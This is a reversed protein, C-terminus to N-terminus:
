FRGHVVMGDTTPTVLIDAENRTKKSRIVWLAIGSGVVAAGLGITLDAGAALGREKRLFPQAEVVCPQHSGACLPAALLGQNRSSSGLIVGVVMSMAGGSILSIEALPLMKSTGPPPQWDKGVRSELNLIRRQLVEREAPPAFARYRNLTEVAKRIQGNREYANAINFLILPRPSLTYAREWAAIADAYQGEEYLAHGNDFLIRAQTDVNTNQAIAPRAIM